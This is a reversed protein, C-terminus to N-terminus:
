IACYDEIERRDQLAKLEAWFRCESTVEFYVRALADDDYLGSFYQAEQELFVEELAEFRLSRRRLSEQWLGAELGRICLEEENRNDRNQLKQSRSQRSEQQQQGRLEEEIQQITELNRERIMDFEFGQIWYDCVEKPNM